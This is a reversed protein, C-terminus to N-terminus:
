LLKIIHGCFKQKKFKLKKPPSPPAAPSCGTHSHTTSDGKRRGQGMPHKMYGTVLM